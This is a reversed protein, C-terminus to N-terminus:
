SPQFGPRSSESANRSASGDPNEDARDTFDGDARDRDDFIALTKGEQAEVDDMGIEAALTVALRDPRCADGTRSVARDTKVADGCLLVVIALGAEFGGIGGNAVAADGVRQRDRRKDRLRHQIRTELSQLAIIRRNEAAAPHM